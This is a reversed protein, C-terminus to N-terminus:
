CNDQCYIWPGWKGWINSGSKDRVCCDDRQHYFHGFTNCNNVGCVLSGLCEEDSDCDGEGDRCPTEVSCCKNDSYNRGGCRFGSPPHTHISVPISSLLVCVSLQEM